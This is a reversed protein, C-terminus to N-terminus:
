SPPTQPEPSAAAEAKAKAQHEDWEAQTPYQKVLIELEAVRAKIGDPASPLKDAPLTAAREIYTAFLGLAAQAQERVPIQGRIVAEDHLWEIRDDKARAAAMHDAGEALHESQLSLVQGLAFVHEPAEGRAIARELAVTAEVYKGHHRLQEGIRAYLEASAKPDDIAAAESLYYLATARRNKAEIMSLGMQGDCRASPPTKNACKRLVNRQQAVDGAEAFSAAEALTADIQAESIQEGDRGRPTEYAPNRLPDDPDRPAKPKPARDFPSAQEILKPEPKADGKCGTIASCALLGLVLARKPTYSHRHRSRVSSPRM